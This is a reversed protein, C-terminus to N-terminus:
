FVLAFAFAAFAFSDLLGALRSLRKVMSILESFVRSAYRSLSYRASQERRRKEHRLPPVLVLVRWRRREQVDGSDSSRHAICLSLSLIHTCSHCTFPIHTGEIYLPRYHRVLGETGEPRSNHRRLTGSGTCRDACNKNNFFVRQLYLKKKTKCRTCVKTTVGFTRAYFCIFRQSLFLRGTKKKFRCEM